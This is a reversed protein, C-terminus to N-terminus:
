TFTEVCTEFRLKEPNILSKSNQWTSTAATHPRAYGNDYLEVAGQKRTWLLTDKLSTPKYIFFFIFSVILENNSIM